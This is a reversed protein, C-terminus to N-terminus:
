NGAGLIGLYHNTAGGGGGAASIIDVGIIGWWDSGVTYGMSVSGSGAATSIGHCGAASFLDHNNIIRSTQNSSSINSGNCVTDLVMNGSSSTVTVAPAASSGFATALNQWGTTQDAGSFTISAAETNSGANGGVSVTQAGSSPALRVFLQVYGSTQNNAHIKAISTMSAGGYTVTTTQTDTGTAVAVFAILNSGTGTHTWTFPNTNGNQAASVADFAVAM